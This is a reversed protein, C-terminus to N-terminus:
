SPGGNECSPTESDRFCWNLMARNKLFKLSIGIKIFHDGTGTVAFVLPILENPLKEKKIKEGVDKIDRKADELNLYKYSVDINLFPTSIQRKILLLGMGSLFDITGAIGAFEGFAVLRKGNEDTIKEYDFLSINKELIADLLPMNYPQGKIVHSFMMYAKNPLLYNIGVEKVGIILNCSSLDENIEAGNEKYEKETFIRTQSPQVIIKINPNKELITRVNSPTLAVRREWVSKDERRLGICANKIM